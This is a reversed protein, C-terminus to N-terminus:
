KKERWAADPATRITRWALLLLAAGAVVVLALIGASVFQEVRTYGSGYWGSGFVMEAFFAASTLFFGSTILSAAVAVLRDLPPGTHPQHRNRWRRVAVVGMWGWFGVLSILLVSLFVLILLLYAIVLFEYLGM